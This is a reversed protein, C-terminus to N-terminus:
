NFLLKSLNSHSDNDSIKRAPVGGWTTKPTTIDKVVVANAGLAVDDAITVNGLIKVGTAIFVNNGIHPACSDGNTSGICVGEHIRCNDGIVANNNIVISGYHAISFGKGIELSYPVSFGLKVSLYHHKFRWYIFPLYAILNTKLRFSYYNCHRLAYQFKWIEDGFVGPHISNRRCAKADQILYEKLQMKTKIM